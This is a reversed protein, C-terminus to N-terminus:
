EERSLQYGILMERFTSISPSITHLKYVDLLMTLQYIHISPPHLVEDLYTSGETATKLQGRLNSLTDPRCTHSEPTYPTSAHLAFYAYSILLNVTNAILLYYCDDKKM